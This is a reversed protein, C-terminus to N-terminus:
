DRIRYIEELLAQYNGFFFALLIAEDLENPESKLRLCSRSGLKMECM